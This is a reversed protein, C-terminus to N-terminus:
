ADWCRGLWLRHLYHAHLDADLATAAAMAAVRRREQDRRRDERRAETRTRAAALDARRRPSLDTDLLRQWVNGIGRIEVAPSGQRIVQLLSRWFATGSTLLIRGSDGTMPHLILTPGEKLVETMWRRGQGDEIVFVQRAWPLAQFRRRWDQLRHGAVLDSEIGAKVVFRQLAAAILLRDPVDIM